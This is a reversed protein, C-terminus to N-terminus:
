EVEIGEKQMFEKLKKLQPKTAHVTFSCKYVKEAEVPPQVVPPSVAEVKKVAEAERARAAERDDQAKKEAQVQQHREQVIAIAEAADLTRKFEVMIEEANDMSAILNVGRSVGTVFNTIQERLKKPTKAKASAMDVVIGARDYDLWEVHEAACLEAFYERLGDECQRKMESEVDSIKGKLAADAKKFGDSVCEKYVAEFQEYPGLVAKKVAKRQEELEQFQKNLDARVAKVAQVTEETCVLAMAGIVQKDVSEKLSRLRQEIVPLQVVQILESMKKGRKRCEECIGGTDYSYLENRCVSCWGVPPEQQEDRLAPKITM